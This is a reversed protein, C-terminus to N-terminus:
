EAKKHQEVRRPLVLVGVLAGVLCVCASIRFLPLGADLIIGSAGPTLVMNINSITAAWSTGRAKNPTTLEVMLVDVAGQACGMGLVSVVLFMAFVPISDLNDIVLLPACVFFGSCFLLPVSGLRQHMRKFLAGQTLSYSVAMMVTVAAIGSSTIGFRKVLYMDLGLIITSFPSTCASSVFLYPLADRLSTSANSEKTDVKSTSDSTRGPLSVAISLAVLACLCGAPYIFGITKSLIISIIPGSIFAIGSIMGITGFQKPLEGVECLDAIMTKGCTLLHIRGGGVFIGAYLMTTTTSLSFVLIGSGALACVAILVPKTGVHNIIPSMFLGLVLNWLLSTTRASGLSSATGGLEVNRGTISSGPISISSYVFFICAQIARITKKRAALTAETAANAANKELWAQMRALGARNADEPSAARATNSGKEM